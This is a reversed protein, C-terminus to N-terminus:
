PQNFQHTSLFRVPVMIGVRQGDPRIFIESVLLLLNAGQLRTGINCRTAIGWGSGSFTCTPM